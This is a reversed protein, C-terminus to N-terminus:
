ALVEEIAEELVAVGERIADEHIVLPPAIKVSAGSYGVPAFLLLGKEVCHGVVESALEPSPEIGGPQVMHLSAVLGKGHVMGIHQPFRRGVRRLELQLIDGMRRANDVLNELITRVGDEDIIRGLSRLVPCGAVRQDVKQQIRSDIGLLDQSMTIGNGVAAGIRQQGLLQQFVGDEIRRM